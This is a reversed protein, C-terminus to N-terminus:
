ADDEILLIEFDVSVSATSAAAVAEFWIDTLAPLVLSPTRPSFNFDNIISDWYFKTLAPEYPTTADNFNARVRCRVDATQNSGVNINTAVLYGTSGQPITFAAHLSQGEGATIIIEDDAGGADEITIAAANAGGYAGARGPTIFARYVRWFTQTTDESVLAGKLEISESVEVLEGAANPGIGVLTVARAGAGATATDAANGGAKVRMALASTRFIAPASLSSVLDFTTIPVAINHGYKHEITHGKVNGKKVEAYFDARLPSEGGYLREQRDTENYPM